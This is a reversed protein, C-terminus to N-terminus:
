HSLLLVSANYWCCKQLVQCVLMLLRLPWTHLCTGSILYHVLFGALSGSMNVQAPPQPWAHLSDEVAQSCQLSVQESLGALKGLSAM